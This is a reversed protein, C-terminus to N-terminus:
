KLWGWNRGTKIDHIAHHKVGFAQSIKRLPQGESLLLRIEAVQALTLKAKWQQEGKPFRENRIADAHNDQETGLCLNEVRDDTCVDNWHRVLLGEVPGIFAAAVLRSVFFRKVQGHRSLQITWRGDLRHPQPKLLGGVANERPLSRVRGYSSVEYLGEYDVVPKWVECMLLM